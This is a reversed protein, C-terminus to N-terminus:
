PEDGHRANWAAAIGARAIKRMSMRLNRVVFGRRDVPPPEMLAYTALDVADCKEADTGYECVWAEFERIQEDTITEATVKM